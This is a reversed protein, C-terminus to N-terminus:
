ANTFRVRTHFIQTNDKSICFQIIYTGAEINKADNIAAELTEYAGIVKEDKIIIHKNKYKKDIEKKNDLYFKYNKKVIENENM